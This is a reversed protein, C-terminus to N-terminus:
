KRNCFKSAETMVENFGDHEDWYDWDTKPDVIVHDMLEKYYKEEIIDGNENKNRDRIKIVERMPPRQFTYEVGECEYKKQKEM